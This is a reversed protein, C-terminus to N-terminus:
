EKERRIFLQNIIDPDKISEWIIIKGCKPCFCDEPVILLGCDNRKLPVQVSYGCGEYTDCMATLSPSGQDPSLIFDLFVGFFVLFAISLLIFWIIDRM